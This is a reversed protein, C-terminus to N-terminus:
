NLLRTLERIQRALKIDIQRLHEPGTAIEKMLNLEIINSYRQGAPTKAGVKARHIILQGINM